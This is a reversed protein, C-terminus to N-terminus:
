KNLYFRFSSDKGYVVYNVNISIKRNILEKKDVTINISNLGRIYNKCKNELVNLIYYQRASGKDFKFENILSGVQNNFRFEGLESLCLNKIQQKIAFSEEVSSISKRTNAKFYIDLNKKM